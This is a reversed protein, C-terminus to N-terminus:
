GNAPHSSDDSTRTAVFLTSWPTDGCVRKDVTWGHRALLDRFYREQFGLELWGHKRIAWLSEGDLRLGWPMPFHDAIPEGAFVVRGGPRVVAALAAVLAQHDACHHFCEFFLVADYAQEIDRIQSFDGQRVQVPLQERRARESILDVFNQEIDIATVQYGSRALLLTTNGWGPGFELVSAGPPLDLSRIIHGIGILQGGITQASRTYFPFPTQAAQAVDFSTVENSSAYPKGHLWEYLQMQVHRYDASEPDAPLPLPFDMHFTTFLRRLADDSEAQAADLERLLADLEALTTIRRSPAISPPIAPSRHLTALPGVQYRHRIWTELGRAMRTETIGRPLRPWARKAISLLPHSM